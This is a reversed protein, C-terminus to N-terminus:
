PADLLKEAMLIAVLHHVSVVHHDQLFVRICVTASSSAMFPLLARSDARANALSEPWTLSSASVLVASARCARRVFDQRGVIQVVLLSTASAQAIRGQAPKQQVFHTEVSHGVVHTADGSQGIWDTLGEVHAGHGIAQVHAPSTDRQSDDASNILASGVDRDVDGHKADLGAIGHDQATSLLSNVGVLHQSHQHPLGYSGGADRFVGNLKDLGCVPGRTPRISSIFSYM